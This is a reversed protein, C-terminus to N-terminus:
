PETGPAPLGVCGLLPHGRRPAGSRQWLLYVLCEEEETGPSLPASGRVSPSWADWLVHCVDRWTDRKTFFAEMERYFLGVVCVKNTEKLLESIDINVVCGSTVAELM